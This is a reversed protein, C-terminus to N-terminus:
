PAKKLEEMNSEFLTGDENLVIYPIDSHHLTTFIAESVETVYYPLIDSGRNKLVTLNPFTFDFNDDKYTLIIHARHQPELPVRVTALTKM